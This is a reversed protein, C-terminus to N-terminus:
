EQEWIRRLTSKGYITPNEGIPLLQCMYTNLHPMLPLPLGHANRVRMGWFSRANADCTKALPAAESM